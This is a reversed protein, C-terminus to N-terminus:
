PCTVSINGGSVPTASTDPGDADKFKTSVALLEMPDTFTMYSEWGYRYQTCTTSLVSGTKFIFDPDVGTNQEKEISTGAYNVTIKTNVPLLEMPGTFPQKTGWGYRYEFTAGSSLDTTGNSALLQATVPVTAFEFDPEVGTNQEKEISAGAYNVTIKTNVPLLEMPGTFPQKTDWGYHYEFTAGGLPHSGSDNLTATM